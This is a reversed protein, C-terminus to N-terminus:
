IHRPREHDLFDLLPAQCVSLHTGMPAYGKFIQERIRPLHSTLLLARELTNSLQFLQLSSAQGLVDLLRPDLGENM